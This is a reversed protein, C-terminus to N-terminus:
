DDQGVLVPPWRSGDLLPREGLPEDLRLTTRVTPNEPCEAAGAPATSTWYVTVSRDTSVLVPENLQPGPDRAGTCATENVDVAVETADGDVAVSANVEVWIAEEDLVPSLRWCSGGNSARWGDVDPELVLYQEDRAPGDEGWAGLAITIKDDDAALVKWDKRLRPEVPSASLASTIADVPEPPEIGDVMASPPWGQSRSGCSVLVEGDVITVPGERTMERGTASATSGPESCGGAVAVVAALWVGTRPRDLTM